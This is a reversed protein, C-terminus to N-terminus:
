SQLNAPNDMRQRLALDCLGQAAAVREDDMDQNEVMGEGSPKDESRAKRADKINEDPEQNGVNSGENGTMKEDSGELEPPPTGDDPFEM